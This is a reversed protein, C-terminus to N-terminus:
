WCCRDVRRIRLRVGARREPPEVAARGAGRRHVHQSLACQVCVRPPHTQRGPAQRHRRRRAIARPVRRWAARASVGSPSMADWGRPHKPHRSDYGGPMARLRARISVTLSRAIVLFWGIAALVAVGIAIVLPTRFGSKSPAIVQPANPAPPGPAFSSSSPPPYPTAYPRHGRQRRSAGRRRPQRRTRTGSPIMPMSPSSSRPQPPAGFPMGAQAAALSPSSDTRQRPQPAGWPAATGGAPSFPSPGPPPTPMPRAPPASFPASALAASPQPQSRPAPNPPATGFRVPPSAALSARSVPGIVARVAPSAKDDDM